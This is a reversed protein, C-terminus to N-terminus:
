EKKIGIISISHATKCMAGLEENTENLEELETEATKCLRRLQEKEFYNKTVFVKALKGKKLAKITTDRGIMAKNTEMAKKIEEPYMINM